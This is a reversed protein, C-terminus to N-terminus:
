RRRAPKWKHIGKNRFEIFRYCHRSLFLATGIQTLLTSPLMEYEVRDVIWEGVIVANALALIILAARGIIGDEYDDHCILFVAILSIILASAVIM